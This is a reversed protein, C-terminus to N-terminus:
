FPLAEEAEDFGQDRSTITKAPTEKPSNQDDMFAQKMSLVFDKCENM